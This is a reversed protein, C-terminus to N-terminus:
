EKEARMLRYAASWLDYDRAAQEAEEIPRLSGRIYLLDEDVYSQVLTWNYLIWEKRTIESAKKIRDSDIM